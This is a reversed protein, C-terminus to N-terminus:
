NCYLRDAMRLERSPLTIIEWERYVFPRDRVIGFFFTAFLLDLRFLPFIFRLCLRNKMRLSPYDRNGNAPLSLDIGPSGLFFLSLSRFFIPFLLALGFPLSILQLETLKANTIRPPAFGRIRWEGRPKPETRNLETPVSTRARARKQFHPRPLPRAHLRAPGRRPLSIDSSPGCERFANPSTPSLPPEINPTRNRPGYTRPKRSLAAAAAAAATAPAALPPSGSRFLSPRRFHSPPSLPVHVRTHAHTRNRRGARAGGGRDVHTGHKTPPRSPLSATTRTNMRVAARTHTRKHRYTRRLQHFLTSSAVLRSLSTSLPLSASLSSSSSASPGLALSLPPWSDSSSSVYLPYPQHTPPHHPPSCANHLATLPTHTAGVALSAAKRFPFLSRPPRPPPPQFLHPPPLAPRLTPSPPLNAAGVTALLLMLMLTLLVLSLVSSSVPCFPLRLVLLIPLPLSYGFLLTSLLFSPLFSAPTEANQCVFADIGPPDLM